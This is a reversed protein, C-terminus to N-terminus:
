AAKKRRRKRRLRGREIKTAGMLVKVQEGPVAEFLEPHSACYAEVSKPDLTEPDWNITGPLGAKQFIEAVFESCFLGKNSALPNKVKRGLWAMFLVWMMGFLGLVDYPREFDSRVATLAQALNPFKPRYLVAVSWKADATEAPWQRVVPWDAHTIWMGGWVRSPHLVWCHSYKSGTLKRIARSLWMRTTSFGFYINHPEGDSESM